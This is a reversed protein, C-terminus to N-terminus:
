PTIAWSTVVRTCSIPTRMVSPARGNSLGECTSSRPVRAPRQGAERNAEDGAAYMM